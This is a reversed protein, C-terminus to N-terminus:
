FKSIIWPIKEFVTKTKGKSYYKKGTKKNMARYFLENKEVDWAYESQWEMDEAKFFLYEGSRFFAYLSSDKSFTSGLKKKDGKKEYLLAIKGSAKDMDFSVTEQQSNSYGKNMYRKNAPNWQYQWSETLTVKEGCDAKTRKFNKRSLTVIPFEKASTDIVLDDTHYTEERCGGDMDAMYFFGLGRIDKFQGDTKDLELIKKGKEVQTRFNSDSVNILEPIGDGNLDIGDGRLENLSQVFNWAGDKKIFILTESNVDGARWGYRFSYHFSFIDPGVMDLGAGFEGIDDGCSRKIEAEVTETLEKKIAEIDNSHFSQPGKFTMCPDAGVPGVMIYFFLLAFIAFIKRM